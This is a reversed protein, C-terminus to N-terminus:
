VHARGIQAILERATPAGKPMPLVYIFLWRLLRKGPVKRARISLAGDAMRFWETVHAVMRPADMRGWQAAATPQLRDLRALLEARVADDYLSRPM